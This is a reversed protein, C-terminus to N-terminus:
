RKEFQIMADISFGEIRAASVLMHRCHKRRWARRLMVDMEVCFGLDSIRDRDFLIDDVVRGDCATRARGIRVFCFARGKEEM